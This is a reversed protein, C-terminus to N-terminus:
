FQANSDRGEQKEPSAQQDYPIQQDYDADEPVFAYETEDDDEALFAEEQKRKKRKQILVVTAIVIIVVIGLIVGILIKKSMTNNEPMDEMSMMDDVPMPEIVNLVFDRKEEITEGGADDYSVVISIPLEGMSTPTFTGEYYDSSGSELNGVYTNRTQTDVDGEIRIMLNNLTVKGTNYYNFNITVPMGMEVQEPLTYDDIDLETVQKVNIGLLEQSTYENGDDDEYEFNVTLTYTKPQADPVVYLRLAKEVSGKPVIDDFYFTNSSDVPTFINGTKETDSSTEEAMTLFMKINHVSKYKHSNMLTMTLDFEEGAMVILPDCVYDSVIIKPKSKKEDEKNEEKDKEPNSINVGAYQKFTTVDKGSTEYEITFEVPYNQSSASSTGAFTFVFHSTQNPPLTKVNKISTSKPVVAGSEGMGTATVKINKAEADGINVIDFSIDFNQNVEYTGTPEKMNRIELSPKQGTSGGVNVYYNQSKDYSRGADDKYSLKLTIPYTGSTIESGAILPFSFTETTGPAIRSFYKSDLANNISIGDNSLGELTLKAEHMTIFNNNTIQGSITTTDGPEIESPTITVNEFKFDPEGSLNNVKLYITSSGTFKINYVNFFSYNLTVPYNKTATTREVDVTLEVETESRPPLSSIRNENGAFGVTFPTNDIDTFTPQIVIAKAGYASGNRLKIKVTNSKGPTVEFVPGNILIVEPQAANPDVIEEEGENDYTAGFATMPLLMPQIALVMILVISTLIKRM